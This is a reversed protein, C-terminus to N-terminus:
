RLSLGTSTFNGIEKGSLSDFIRVVNGIERRDFHYAYVVGLFSQKEDFNASYFRPRVWVRPLSGPVEVKQFIDEKILKQILARRKVQMEPSRDITAAPTASQTNTKIQEAKSDSASSIETSGSGPVIKTLTEPARAIAIGIIIIGGILLVMRFISKM